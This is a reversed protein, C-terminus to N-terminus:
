FRKRNNRQVSGNKRGEKLFEKIIERDIEVALQEALASVIESEIDVFLPRTKGFLVELWDLKGTGLCKPCVPYYRGKNLFGKGSCEKCLVEYKELKPLKDVEILKSPKRM